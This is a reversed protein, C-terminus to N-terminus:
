ASKEYGTLLLKPDPTRNNADFRNILDGKYSFVEKGEVMEYPSTRPKCYQGGIRGVKVIRKNMIKELSRAMLEYFYYKRAISKQNCDDFSEACDGLVMMVSNGDAVDLLEDKM